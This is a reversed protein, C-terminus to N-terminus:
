GEAINQCQQLQGRSRDLGISRVRQVALIVM